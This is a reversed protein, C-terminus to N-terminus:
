WVNGALSSLDNDYDVLVAPFSIKTGFDTAKQCPVAIIKRLSLREVREYIDSRPRETVYELVV